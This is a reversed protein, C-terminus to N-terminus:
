KIDQAGYGKVAGFLEFAKDFPYRNGYMSVRVTETGQMNMGLAARFTNLSSNPNFSSTQTGTIGIFGKLYPADIKKSITKVEAENLERNDEHFALQEVYEFNKAFVFTCEGDSSPLIMDGNRNGFFLNNWASTVRKTELSKNPNAYSRDLASCSSCGFINNYVDADIGTMYRFAYGMDYIQETRCWTFLVTNNHFAISSTNPQVLGGRVECAAMRNAVFVNNYVDFHGGKCIMEIAFHYGNLFVCNRITINGEAEGSILQFARTTGVPQMLTRRLSEGAVVIRGTECGEPAAASPNDYLPASYANIQGRDFIIGDILIMGNRKGEVRIDLVGQNGSTIEQEVGPRMMTRFKLPDRQSFDDSYGGVISLYKNVKVWGQDLSGLYNGQAVCIVAGQPANNIAKQLDKIPSSQSGNNRNSGGNVSVYLTKTGKPIESAAIGQAFQKRTLEKIDSM